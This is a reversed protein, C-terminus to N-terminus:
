REVKRTLKRNREGSTGPMQWSRRRNLPISNSSHIVTLSEDIRDQLCDRDELLRKAEEKGLDLLMGTIKQALPQNSNQGIIIEYLKFGLDVMESDTQDIEEKGKEDNYGGETQEFYM